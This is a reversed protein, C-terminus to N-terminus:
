FDFESVKKKFKRAMASAKWAM